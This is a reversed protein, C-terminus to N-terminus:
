TRMKRRSWVQNPCHLAALRWPWPSNRLTVLPNADYFLWTCRPHQEATERRLQLFRLLRIYAGASAAKLAPTYVHGHLTQDFSAASENAKWQDRLWEFQQDWYRDAAYRAIEENGIRCANTYVPLPSHYCRIRLAMRLAHAACDVDYKLAAELARSLLDIDLNPVDPYRLPYCYRLLLDLVTSDESVTVPDIKALQYNVECGNSPPQKLTFMTSFFPSALSHVLQHVHFDVRDSTRLIVDATATNFPPNATKYEDNQLAAM